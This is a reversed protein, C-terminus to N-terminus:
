DDEGTIYPKVLPRELFKKFRQYFIEYLDPGIDFIVALCNVIPIITILFRKVLDNVHDTPTYYNREPRGNKDVKRTEERRTKDSQYNKWTLLSYGILCIVAPILYFYSFFNEKYFHIFGYFIGLLYDM